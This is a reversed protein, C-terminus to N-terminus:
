TWLTLHSETLCCIIINLPEILSSIDCEKPCVQFWLIKCVFTRPLNRELWESSFNWVAHYFDVMKFHVKVTLPNFFTLILINEGNRHTFSILVHHTCDVLFNSRYRLWNLLNPLNNQQYFFFNLVCIWLDCVCFCSIPFRRFSNKIQSQSSHIPPHLLSIPLYLISRTASTEVLSSVKQVLTWNKSNKKLIKLVATAWNACM